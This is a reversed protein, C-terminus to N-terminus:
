ASLQDDDKRLNGSHKLLMLSLRNQWLLYDTGLHDEIKLGMLHRNTATPVAWRVTGYLTLDYGAEFDFRLRFQSQAKLPADCRVMLGHKSVNLVECEKRGAALQFDDGMLYIDLCSSDQPPLRSERRNDSM